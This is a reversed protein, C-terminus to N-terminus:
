KLHEKPCRRAADEFCKRATERDKEIDVYVFNTTVAMFAGIVRGEPFVSQPAFRMTDLSILVNLHAHDALRILKEGEEEVLFVRVNTRGGTNMQLRITKAKKGSLHIELKRNYEALFPHDKNRILISIPTGTTKGEFVGSLVEFAEDEKRQTTIKSQGPKRRELDKQILTEDFSIGAPCGDIVVGIAKGHSEGFTSIKFLQGFSNSM